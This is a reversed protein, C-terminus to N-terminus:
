LPDVLASAFRKAGDGDNWRVWSAGDRQRAAALLAPWEDRAPWATRVVALDDAALAEATVHQEAFPRQEAVVVAPRGAAAIEAVANQGAHSIVVEASTLEQWPDATWTSGGIVRADWGAATLADVLDPPASSGGGGLLVAVRGPRVEHRTRGDFRSLAGVFTTRALHPRLHDLLPAHGPWPAIVAAAMAYGLAHAPDARRGPMATTSVAVGLTRALVAVEVSVDVHVRSPRAAAIWGAIAAMRARYDPSDLPAWHLTGGATRDAPDPLAPDPPLPVWDAFPHQAPEPLSSLAVVPVPCARAVVAARTLHGQGHHHVYYGIM